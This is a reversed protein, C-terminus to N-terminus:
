WTQTGKALTGSSRRCCVLRGGSQVSVRPQLMDESYEHGAECGHSGRYKRQESEHCCQPKSNPWEPYYRNHEFMSLTFGAPTQTESGCRHCCSGILLQYTCKLAPIFVCKGFDERSEACCHMSNSTADQLVGMEGLIDCLLYEDSEPSIRPLEILPPARDPTEESHLTM